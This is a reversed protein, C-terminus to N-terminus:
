LLEVARQKMDDTVEIYRQTTTLHKHGALEMIVKASVGSHALKTIFGRRGSHSTADDLGTLHYIQSFLQCLSNASFSHGKQSRMLPASLAPLGSLSQFYTTIERQLRTNAFITRGFSGKTYSPKLYIRDRPDGQTDVIDGVTLAAIEGVRMGAFHSLMIALRNRPGHTRSAVVALVRKLEQENLVKAQKM